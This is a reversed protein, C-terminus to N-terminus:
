AAAGAHADLWQLVQPWVERHARRGVLVGVHQLAVGVDGEYWLLQADGSGAAAHFPLVADPPVVHSRPDVVSLVPTKAGAPTAPRGGVTLTGGMFRNERYLLEVVEEFLRRPMPLEDLTWRTVLLHTQLAERDSLSNLWDTWRAQVFSDPAARAAAMSLFSGPVEHLLATLQRAHPARAVFPTFADAATGFQIPAELLVLGGVREPHLAAFIAALTGGLSHGALFVPRRGREDAIAELCDLICREAYDALGLDQEDAGPQEWQLLYVAAGHQLLRQVVSIRPILDWIYARKIPAPLLLLLPGDQGATGYAKLTFAPTSLVVRSPTEQPGLGVADLWRGQLRRVQDIQGYANM